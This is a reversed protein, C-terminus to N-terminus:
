ADREQIHSKFIYAMLFSGHMGMVLHPIDAGVYKEKKTNFLSTSDRSSDLSLKKM